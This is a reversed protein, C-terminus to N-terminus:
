LQTHSATAPRPELPETANTAAARLSANADQFDLIRSIGELNVGATLLTTIRELRALQL